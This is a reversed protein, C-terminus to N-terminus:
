GVVKKTDFTGYKVFRYLAYPLKFIFDPMFLLIFDLFFGKFKVDYSDKMKEWVNSKNGIGERGKCGIMLRRSWMLEKQYMSDYIEKPYILKASKLVFLIGFGVKFIDECSKINSGKKINLRYSILPTTFVFVKNHPFLHLMAFSQIFWSEEVSSFDLSDWLDKRVMFGSIAVFIKKTTKLIDTGCEYLCDGSLGEYASDKMSSVINGDMDYFCESALMMAAEGKLAIDYIKKIAGKEFLDDDSMFLIYKGRAMKGVNNVNRDYGINIENKYYRILGPYSFIYESVLEETCDSSANDSIFLEFDSVSLYESNQIEFLINDLLEQLEKKRNYTPIGITVKVCETCKYEEFNEM